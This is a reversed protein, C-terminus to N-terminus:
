FRVTMRVRTDHGRLLRSLDSFRIPKLSKSDVSLALLRAAPDNRSLDFLDHATLCISSKTRAVTVGYGVSPRWRIREIGVRQYAAPSTMKGLRAKSLFITDVEKRPPCTFV